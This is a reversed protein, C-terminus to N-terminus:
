HYKKPINKVVAFILHYQVNSLLEFLVNTHTKRIVM